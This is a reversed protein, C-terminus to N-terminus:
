QLSKVVFLIIFWNSDCSFEFLVFM